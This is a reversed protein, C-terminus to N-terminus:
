LGREAYIAARSIEEDSLPPDPMPHTRAWEEAEAISERFAALRAAKDKLVAEAAEASEITHTM